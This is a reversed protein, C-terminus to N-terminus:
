MDKALESRAMSQQVLLVTGLPHVNRQRAKKKGKPEGGRVVEGSKLLSHVRSGCLM